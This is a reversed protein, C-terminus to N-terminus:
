RAGGGSFGSLIRSDIKHTSSSFFQVSAALGVILSKLPVIEALKLASTNVLSRVALPFLTM